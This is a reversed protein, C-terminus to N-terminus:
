ATGSIGCRLSANCFCEKGENPVYVAKSAIYAAWRCAFFAPRSVLAVVLSVPLESPWTTVFSTPRMVCTVGRQWLLQRAVM